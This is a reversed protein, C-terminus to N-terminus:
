HIIQKLAWYEPNCLGSVILGLESVQVILTVALIIAGIAFVVTAFIWGDDNISDIGKKCSFRALWLLVALFSATAVLLVISTVADIRAQRILVSWLHEATTGLKEALERLLKETQENM